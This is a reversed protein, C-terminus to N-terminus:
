KAFCYHKGPHGADHFAGALILALDFLAQQREAMFVTMGKCARECLWLRLASRDRHLMAGCKAVVDAAHHPGHYPHNAYQQEILQMDRLVKAQHLEPLRKYLRMNMFWKDVEYAICGSLTHVQLTPCLFCRESFNVLHHVPVCAKAARRGSNAIFM